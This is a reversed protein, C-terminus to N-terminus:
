SSGKVYSPEIPNNDNDCLDLFHWEKLNLAQFTMKWTNSLKDCKKESQLGLIIQM